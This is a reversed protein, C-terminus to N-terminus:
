NHFNRCTITIFFLLCLKKLKHSMKYILVVHRDTRGNTQTPLAQFKELVAWVCACVNYNDLAPGGHQGGKISLHPWCPASLLPPCPFPGPPPPPSSCPCPPHSPLHKKKKKLKKKTRGGKRPPPQLPTAM